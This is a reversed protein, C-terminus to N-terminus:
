ANKLAAIKANLYAETGNLRRPVTAPRSRVGFPRTGAQLDRSAGQALLKELEDRGFFRTLIHIVSLSKTMYELEPTLTKKALM